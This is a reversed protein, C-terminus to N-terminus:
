DSVSHCIQRLINAPDAKSDHSHGHDAVQQRLHFVICLEIHVVDDLFRDILEDSISLSSHM